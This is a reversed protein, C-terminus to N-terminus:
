STVAKFEDILARMAEPKKKARRYWLALADGENSGVTRSKRPQPPHWLHHIDASFKAPAGALTRLACSWSEDEQGWGVFRPDLPVDLYTHHALAVIGGGEIARYPKADRTNDTSLPLGVPDAGAYVLATSERSLRRVTYHPMAWVAGDSIARVADRLSQPAVLVDADAIVMIEAPDMDISAVARGKSWPESAALEALVVAYDPHNEAYHALVHDLARQRHEDSPRWPIVVTTM